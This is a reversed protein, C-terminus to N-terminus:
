CASHLIQYETRSIRDRFVSQAHEDDSGDSGETEHEEEWHSLISGADSDAKPHPLTWIHPQTYFGIPVNLGFRDHKINRIGPGAAQFTTTQYTSYSPPQDTDNGAPSSNEIDPTTTNDDTRTGTTHDGTTLDPSPNTVTIVPTRAQLVEVVAHISYDRAVRERNRTGEDVECIRKANELERLIQKLHATSVADCDLHTLPHNVGICSWANSEAQRDILFYDRHLTGTGLAYQEMNEMKM